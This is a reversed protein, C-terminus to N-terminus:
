KKVEQTSSNKTAYWALIKDKLTDYGFMAGYAVLIGAIIAAVVFYWLITINMVACYIFLALVTVVEAVIFALLAWSFRDGILKKFVETLLNTLLILGGLIWLIIAVNMFQEM